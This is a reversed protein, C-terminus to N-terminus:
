SIDFVVTCCDEEKEEGKEFYDFDADFEIDILSHALDVPSGPRCLFFFM